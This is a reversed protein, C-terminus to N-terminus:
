ELTALYDLLAQLDEPPLHSPPMLNGPKVRQPDTIWTSLHDRTNPTTGAALTLRSALHTLDPGAEGDAPTGAIAHCHACAELYVDYGRRLTPDTPITKPRAQAATWAEFEDPPLAVVVFAMLAHQVGCFEACQGRFRGPADAQIWFTNPHDPLLDMKGHLRPVWFSHIVDAALLELKVLRGTPIHIENATVIGQEPYSVAWWWQFGEVRITLPDEPLTRGRGFEPGLTRPPLLAVTAELTFVLLVVLIVAPIALGSVVVFRRAGLPPGEPNARRRLALGLLVVVAVFVATGLWFMLWWLGAITEAAPGSPDLASQVGGRCGGLLVGLALLLLPAIAPPRPTM